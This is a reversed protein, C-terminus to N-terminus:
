YSMGKTTCWCCVEMSGAFPAVNDPLEPAVAGVDVWNRTLGESVRTKREDSSTANFWAVLSNGDQPHLTTTTNDFYM